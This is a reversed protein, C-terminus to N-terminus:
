EICTSLSLFFILEGVTDTNAIVIGLLTFMINIVM